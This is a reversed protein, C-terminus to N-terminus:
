LKAPEKVSHYIGWSAVTPDLYDWDVKDWRVGPLPITDIPFGFYNAITGMRLESIINAAYLNEWGIDFVKNLVRANTFLVALPVVGLAKHRLFEPLKPVDHEWWFWGQDYKLEACLLGQPEIDPLPQTILVDQEILLVRANPRVTHGYQQWWAFFSRDCNKWSDRNDPERNVVLRIDATPNSRVLHHLHPYTAKAHTNILITWPSM